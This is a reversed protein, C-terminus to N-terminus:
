VVAWETWVKKSKAYRLKVGFSQGGTLLGLSICKCYTAEISSRITFGVRGVLWAWRVATM